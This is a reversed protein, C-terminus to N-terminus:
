VVAPKKSAIEKGRDILAVKAAWYIIYHFKIQIETFQKLTQLYNFAYEERDNTRSCALMGGFCEASIEDEMWSGDNLVDRLM